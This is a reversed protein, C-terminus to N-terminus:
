ADSTARQPVRCLHRERASHTNAAAGSNTSVSASSWSKKRSPGGVNRVQQVGRSKAAVQCPDRIYRSLDRSSPSSISFSNLLFAAWRVLSSRFLANLILMTFKQGYRFAEVSQGIGPPAIWGSALPKALRRTRLDCPRKLKCQCYLPPCPQHGVKFGAINRKM